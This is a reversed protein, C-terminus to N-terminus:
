RSTEPRAPRLDYQYIVLRDGDTTTQERVAMWGLREYFLGSGDPGAQAALEATASAGGRARRVFHEVLQTGVGAGRGAPTVAVATLVAIAASTATVGPETVVTGASTHAPRRRPSYFGIMRRLYPLLRTRAFHMALRPRTLLGVCGLAALALPTRRDALVDRLHAAENTSGILFGCPQGQPNTAVLAIGHPPILFTAQWRRLFREGLKPFLGAPLLGAHMTALDPLDLETAARVVVAAAATQESTTDM